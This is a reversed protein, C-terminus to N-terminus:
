IYHHTSINKKKNTRTLTSYREISKETHLCFVRQVKKVLILIIEKNKQNFICFTSWDMVLNFSVLSFVILLVCLHFCFQFVVLLSFEAWSWFFGWLNDWSPLPFIEYNVWLFYVLNWLERTLFFLYLM